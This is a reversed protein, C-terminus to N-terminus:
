YVDKEVYNHVIETAHGVYKTSEIFYEDDLDKFISHIIPIFRSTNGKGSTPNIIFLHKM